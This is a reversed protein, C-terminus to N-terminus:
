EPKKLELFALILQRDTIFGELSSRFQELLDQALRSDRGNAKIRAVIEAQRSLRERGGQIHEETMALYQELTRRDM